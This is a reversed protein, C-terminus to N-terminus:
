SVIEQIIVSLHRRSIRFHIKLVFLSVITPIYRDVLTDNNSKLLTIFDTSSGLDCSMSSGHQPSLLCAMTRLVSLRQPTFTRSYRGRVPRRLIALGVRHVSSIKLPKPIDTCPSPEPLWLWHLWGLVHIIASITKLFCKVRSLIVTIEITYYKEKTPMCSSALSRGLTMRPFRIPTRRRRRSGVSGATGLARATTRIAQHERTAGRIAM